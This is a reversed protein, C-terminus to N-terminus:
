ATAIPMPPKVPFPRSTALILTAALGLGWSAVYMPTYTGINDYILGVLVPGTLMGLSGAMGTGGIITGMMRVPFYERIIVAYLPMTGAIKAEALRLDTRPDLREGEAPSM